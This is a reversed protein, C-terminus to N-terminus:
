EVQILFAISVPIYIEGETSLRGKLVIIRPGDVM